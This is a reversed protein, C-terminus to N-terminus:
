KANRPHFRHRRREFSFRWCGFDRRVDLGRARDEIATLDFVQHSELPQALRM